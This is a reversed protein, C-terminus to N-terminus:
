RERDIGREPHAADSEGDRDRHGPSRLARQTTELETRIRMLANRAHGLQDGGKEKPANPERDDLAGQAHTANQPLDHRSNDRMQGLPMLKDHLDSRDRAAPYAAIAYSAMLPMSMAVVRSEPVFIEGRKILAARTASLDTTPRSLITKMQRASAHGGAVALAAIYEQQRDSLRNWRPELYNDEITRAAQPLAREVTSLTIPMDSAMHWTEAAIVQLHAPYSGSADIVTDIADLNWTGGVAQAPELLALEAAQRDLHDPIKTVQFLREPHTILPRDPNPGVMTDHVGPLAAAVFGVPASTHFRNLQHLTAGLLELDAPPASQLEDATIVLGGRDGNHRRAATALDALVQALHGGSRGLEPPTDQQAPHFNIGVGAVQVGSIRRLSDLAQRWFPAPEQTTRRDIAAALESWIGQSRTAQVELVTFGRARADDALQDLLVTKGTGRLGTFVMDTVRRRGSVELQALQTAWDARIHERGPLGASAPRHGAGPTYVQPEM